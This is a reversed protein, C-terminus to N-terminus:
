CMTWLATSCLRSPRRKAWRAPSSYSLCRPREQRAAVLASLGDYSPLAYDALILDLEADQLAALFNAETVVRKATFQIGEKRLERLALEAEAPRDELHLIRLPKTM